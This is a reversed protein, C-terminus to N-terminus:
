QRLAASGSTVMILGIFFMKIGFLIGIAWAGSLPFQAAIMMGLLISIIGGFILWGGNPRMRLGAMLEFFGDVIFYAALLISIIGSGFIPNAIMAFGCILTLFGIAFLFLGKGLTNVQFAWFLRAVGTIALLIGVLFVISYGTLSPALMALIGMLIAAAGLLTLNISM